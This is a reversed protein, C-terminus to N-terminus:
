EGPPYPAARGTTDTRFRAFTFRAPPGGTTSNDLLWVGVRLPDQSLTQPSSLTQWDWGNWSYAGTLVKTSTVYRYQLWIWYPSPTAQLNNLTTAGHGAFNAFAYDDSVLTDLSSGSSVLRMTELKTPTGVTGTVQIVLGAQNDNSAYSFAMKATFTWDTGTPVDPLYWGVFRSGNAPSTLKLVATGLSQTFTAGSTTNFAQWTKEFGTAFEDCVSTGTDCAAPHADPNYESSGGGSGSSGQLKWGATGECVYLQQGSPADTDVHVRGAEPAADCDGSTPSTSNPLEVLAGSLDWTSTVTEAGYDGDLTSFSASGATGCIVDGGSDAKLLEGAACGTSLDELDPVQSDSATGTLNSFSVANCTLDGSAAIATGFQGASCDAPNAAFASSTAANISYSGSLRASPLVGSSIDNAADLGSITSSTHAHSDDAIQPSAASSGTGAFDGALRVVGNTGATADAPAYTVRGVGGGQDTVTFGASQLFELTTATLSPSGDVERLTLSGGGGGGSGCAAWAGNACCCLVETAGGGASCDTSSAGNTAFAQRPKGEVCAGLTAVTRRPPFSLQAHAAGAALFVVGLMVFMKRRM